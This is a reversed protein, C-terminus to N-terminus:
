INSFHKAIEDPIKVSNVVKAEHFAIIPKNKNKNDYGVLTGVLKANEDWVGSNENVYYKKNNVILQDFVMEELPVKEKPVMIVNGNGNIIGNQNFNSNQNNNSVLDSNTGDATKNQDPKIIKEVIQERQTELHPFMQLFQKLMKEKEQQIRSNVEEDFKKKADGEIQNVLNKLKDELNENQM